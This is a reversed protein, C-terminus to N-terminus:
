EGKMPARTETLADAKKPKAPAALFGRTAAAPIQPGAAAMHPKKSSPQALIHSAHLVPAQQQIQLAM